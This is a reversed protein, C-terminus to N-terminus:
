CPTHGVGVPTVKDILYSVPTAGSTVGSTAALHYDLAWNTCTEGPNPGYQGAQQSQFDVNAELNGGGDDQISQVTVQSDHSTSVSQAWSGYSGNSVQEAPTFTDWAGRYDQDNIGGFYAAMTTAVATADPDANVASIDITMGGITVQGPPSPPAAPSPSTTPSGPESDMGQAGPGSSAASPSPSNGTGPHHASLHRALVVGGASGGGVVLVALAVILPILYGPRSGPHPPPGVPPPAPPPLFSPPPPGPSDPAQRPPAAGAAMQTLTPGEQAPIPYGCANCFRVESKLELGCHRCFRQEASM